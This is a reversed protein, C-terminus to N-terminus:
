VEKFRDDPFLDVGNNQDNQQYLKTTFRPLIYTQSSLTKLKVM